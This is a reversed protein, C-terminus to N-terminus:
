GGQGRAGSARSYSLTRLPLPLPSPSLKDRSSGIMVNGVSEGKKHSFPKGNYEGEWDKAWVERGHVDETIFDLCCHTGPVVLVLRPLYGEPKKKEAGQVVNRLVCRILLTIRRKDQGKAMTGRIQRVVNDPLIEDPAVAEPHTKQLRRRRKTKNAADRLTKDIAVRSGKIGIWLPVEDEAEIVTKVVNARWADPQIVLKKLEDDSALSAQWLLYDFDQWTLHARVKEEEASLMTKRAAGRMTRNITRLLDSKSQKAKKTDRFTAQKRRIAEEEKKWDLEEKSIAEQAGQAEKRREKEAKQLKLLTLLREAM